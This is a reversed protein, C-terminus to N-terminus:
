EGLIVPDLDGPASPQGPLPHGNERAIHAVLAMAEESTLSGPDSAPMTSLIRRYLARASQGHWHGWFGEGKLPPGHDGGTMAAGHCVTCHDAFVTAGAPAPEAARLQWAIALGPIAALAVRYRRRM